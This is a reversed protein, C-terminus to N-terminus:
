ERLVFSVCRLKQPVPAVESDIHLKRKYNNRKGVGDFGKPYRAQLTSAMDDGVVDCEFESGANLGIQLVGLARSRIQGLPYRGSKTVVVHSNIKGDSVSSQVEIWSIM